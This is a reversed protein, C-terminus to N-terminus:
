MRRLLCWLSGSQAAGVSMGPAGGCHHGLTVQKQQRHGAAVQGPAERTGVAAAPAQRQRSGWVPISCGQLGAGTMVQHATPPEYHQVAAAAWTRGRQGGCTQGM